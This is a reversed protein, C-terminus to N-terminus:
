GREQQDRQKRAYEEIRAKEERIFRAKEKAALAEEAAQRRLALKAQAIKREDTRREARSKKSM